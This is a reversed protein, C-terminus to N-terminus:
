HISCSGELSLTAPEIGAAGAERFAQLDIVEALPAGEAHGSANCVYQVRAEEIAEAMPKAVALKADEIVHTYRRQTEILSHGMQEAIYPM